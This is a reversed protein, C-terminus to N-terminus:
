FFTAASGTIARNGQIAPPDAQVTDNIVTTQETDPDFENTFNGLDITGIKTLGYTQMYQAEDGEFDAPPPTGGEPLLYLNLACDTNEDQSTTNNGFYEVEVTHLTDPIDDALTVTLTDAPDMRTDFGNDLPTEADEAALEAACIM